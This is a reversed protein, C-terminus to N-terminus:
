PTVLVLGFREFAERFRPADPGLYLVAQGQLPASPTGEGNWFRVRREPFCIAAAFRGLAQFWQTETANNVLVVAATVDGSSVFQLLRSCFRGVLDAAYPPNMWVRGAWEQSLGDSGITFYRSARVVENAKDSSAPDLDIEGLVARAAEIYESPTYWENEGSNHSVHAARLLGATTLEQGKEVTTRIHKEFREPPISAVAQWRSSQMGSVGHDRLTPASVPLVINSTEPPRGGENKPLVALMEGARRECRLRGEAAENQLQLHGEGLSALRRIAESRDKLILVEDIMTATPIAERIRALEHRLRDVDAVRLGGGNGALTGTPPLTAPTADSVAGAGETVLQTM